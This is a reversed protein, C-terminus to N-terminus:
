LVSAWSLRPLLIGARVKVFKMVCVLFHYPHLARMTQLTVYNILVTLLRRRTLDWCKHLFTIKRENHYRPSKNGKRPNRNPKLLKQSVKWYTPLCVPFTCHYFVKGFHERNELFVPLYQSCQSLSPGIKDETVVVSYKEKSKACPTPAPIVM